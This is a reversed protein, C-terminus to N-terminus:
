KDQDPKWGLDLFTEVTRLLRKQAEPELGSLAQVIARVRALRSEAGETEM